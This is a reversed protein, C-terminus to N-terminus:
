SVLILQMIKVPGHKVVSIIRRLLSVNFPFHSDFEPYTCHLESISDTQFPVEQM